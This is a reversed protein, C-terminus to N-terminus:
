VRVTVYDVLFPKAGSFGWWNHGESLHQPKTMRISRHPKSPVPHAGSWTLSRIRETVSRFGVALNHAILVFRRSWGGETFLM